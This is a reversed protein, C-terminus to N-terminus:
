KDAAQKALTSIVADQMGTGTLDCVTVDDPSTRGTSKGSIIDGLESFLDDDGAIGAGVAHNLEGIWRCQQLSDAIYLDAEGLFEPALENKEPSDAGVATIHLGAHLWDSQILPQRSATTTVVIDSGRVVAEATSCVKVPIGLKDAMEAAYAKAKDASRGWVLLQELPRVMTLAEAQLRAQVGTGIIGGTKANPRSLHKAALAGAAATRVDTLYGNDLLVASTMGTKADLLIMLGGGSPLGQAPNGYFGTSVKMAFYAEGQIYAAKADMEGGSGKIPLHMVPPMSVKGDSLAKFGDAIADIVSQDLVVSSRLEAENLVSVDPM